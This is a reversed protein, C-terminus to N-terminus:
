GFIPKQIASSAIWGCYLRGLVWDNCMQENKENIKRVWFMGYGRFGHAWTGERGLGPAGFQPRNWDRDYLSNTQSERVQHIM